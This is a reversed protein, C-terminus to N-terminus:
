TFYTFYSANLGNCLAACSVTDDCHDNNAIILHFCVFFMVNM